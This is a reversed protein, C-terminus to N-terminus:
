RHSGNDALITVTPLGTAPTGRVPDTRSGLWDDLIAVGGRRCSGVDRDRVCEAEHPDREKTWRDPQGNVLQEYDTPTDIDGAVGPDDVDVEVIAERHARLVAKAGVLPDARRLEDFMARSFVVPHGNRGQYRARVIPGRTSNFVESCGRLQPRPM